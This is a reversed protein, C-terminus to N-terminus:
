CRGNCKYEVLLNIKNKLYVETIENRLDELSSSLIVEHTKLSQICSILMYILISQKVSKIGENNTDVLGPFIEELEQAIVGLLQKKSQDKILNYKRLKIKMLIMLTIQVHM